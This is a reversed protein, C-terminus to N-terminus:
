IKNEGQVYERRGGGFKRGVCIFKLKKKIKEPLYTTLSLLPM